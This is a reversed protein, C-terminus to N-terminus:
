TKLIRWEKPYYNNLRNPLFKAWGLNHGEYQMLAWGRHDTGPFFEAKRLYQLAQELHLAIKPLSNNYVKSLALAHDPILGNNVLKGGTIGAQRLYLRDQLLPVIGEFGEPVAMVDEKHRFLHLPVAPDIWAAMAQLEAKTLKTTKQKVSLNADAGETKQLCALFFGEGKLKDPYFRYCAAKHQQTFSQVINWSEDVVLPLSQVAFEDCLWDVVAEDEEVSYSCTCYILVGTKKLAPLAEALIRQQRQSCLMVNSESWEGVAAPDRRFLGSGSCPADIVLVDFYSALRAFDKPDNSTVVVNPAGWKIINEQLITSRSKIVENSVLLSGPTILSQILTSKGGPAACLDLVKLTQSLDVTQRMAQELFMSSAEQVYYCGAHLLPDLTFSPRQELYYGYSSWPVSTTKFKVNEIKCKLPNVRISTVQRGAEHVAEFAGRDFGPAHLLSNLLSSPLM